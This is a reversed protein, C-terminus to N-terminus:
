AAVELNTTQNRMRFSVPKRSTILSRIDGEGSQNSSMSGNALVAPACRLCVFDVGAMNDKAESVVQPSAESQLFASRRLATAFGSFLSSILFHALVAM